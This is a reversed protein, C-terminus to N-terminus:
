CARRPARIAAPFGPRGALRRTTSADNVIMLAAQVLIRAATTDLDPRVTRLLDTREAVYDLQSQRARHMDAEPLQRLDDVVVDVLDRRHTALHLRALADDEDTAAALAVDLEM